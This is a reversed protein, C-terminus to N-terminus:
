RREGGRDESRRALWLSFVTRRDDEGLAGWVGLGDAGATRFEVELCADRVPCGACTRAALERDTLPQGTFEPWGPEGPVLAMCAGDRTVIRWLVDTPVDALRDLEVAVAECWDEPNV